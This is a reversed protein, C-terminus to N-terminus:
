EDKAELRVVPMLDPLSPVGDAPTITLVVKEELTGNTSEEETKHLRPPRNLREFQYMLSRGRVWTFLRDDRLPLTAWLTDGPRYTLRQGTWAM